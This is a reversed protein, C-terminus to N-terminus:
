YNAVQIQLQPKPIEPKPAKLTQSKQNKPTPAGLGQLDRFRLGWDKVGFGLGSVWCEWYEVGLDGFCWLGWIDLSLFGFVKLDRLGELDWVPLM